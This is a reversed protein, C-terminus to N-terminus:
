GWSGSGVVCGALFDPTADTRHEGPYGISVNRIVTRGVRAVLRRHTHGFLWLDPEYRAILDSLDSGFAPSLRDIAGQAAPHPAHHTVVVSRGSFPEALRDAIWNRHDHHIDRLVAPTVRSRPLWHPDDLGSSLTQRSPMSIRGHDNMVSQAVRMAAAADGCLDYDTWLTAILFRAHAQVLELKQAYLAGVTESIARLRDEEDIGAGYFDHNGPLYFVPAPAFLDILWRLAPALQQWPDSILDGAIIVAAYRPGILAQLGNSAFVDAGSRLYADRHFDALVLVPGVETLVHVSM